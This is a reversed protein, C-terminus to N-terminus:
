LKKKSIFVTVIIIIIIVAVIALAGVAIGVIIGIPLGKQKGDEEEIIVELLVAANLDEEITVGDKGTFINRDNSILVSYIKEKYNLWKYDNM